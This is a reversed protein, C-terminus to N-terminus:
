RTDPLMLLGEGGGVATAHLATRVVGLQAQADAVDRTLGAIKALTRSMAIRTRVMEANARRANREAAATIAMRLASDSAALRAAERQLAPGLETASVLAREAAQLREFARKGSAATKSRVLMHYADYHGRGSARARKLSKELEVVEAQTRLLAERYPAAVDRATARASVLLTALLIMLFPMSARGM